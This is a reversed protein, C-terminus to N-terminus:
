PSPRSSIFTHPRLFDRVGDIYFDLLKYARLELRYLLSNVAHHLDNGLGAQAEARGTVLFDAVAEHLRPDELFPLAEELAARADAIRERILTNNESNV